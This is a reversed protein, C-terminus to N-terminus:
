KNYQSDRKIFKEVNESTVLSTEVPITKKPTKGNIFDVANKVALEGMKYPDQAITAKLPTNNKIADLVDPTSDVGAIFLNKSGRAQVASLAGTAASENVGFFADIDPHAQLINEAAELAKSREMGAGQNAVVKIGPSKKIEELFGTERDKCSTITPWGIIAIKGKGNLQKTVYKAAAKGIEKNDSAIFSTTDAGVVGIDVTFVGINKDNAEKVVNSVAKSDIPNILLADVNQQLLDEVDALQNEIKYNASTMKLDVNLKKAEDQAGKQMAVFFPHVGQGFSFGLKIESNSTSDSNGANPNSSSSEQDGNACGSILFAM